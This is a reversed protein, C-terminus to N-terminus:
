THEESRMASTSETDCRKGLKPELSQDLITIFCGTDVECPLEQGDELQLTVFILQSRGAENNMAVTAPLQPHISNETACSCLFLLCTFAFAVRIIKMSERKLRSLTKNKDLRTQKRTLRLDYITFGMIRPMPMSMM